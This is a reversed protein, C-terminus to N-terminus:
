QGDCNGAVIGLVIHLVTDVTQEGASVPHLDDDNIITGPVVGTGDGIGICVFIGTNDPHDMLFVAAVALADVLSQPMGGTCIELHHVTVVRDAFVERGKQVHQFVAFGPTTHIQRHGVVVIDM